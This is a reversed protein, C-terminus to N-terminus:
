GAGREIREGRVIRGEWDGQVAYWLMAYYCLVAFCLVFYFLIWVKRVEDDLIKEVEYHVLLGSQM